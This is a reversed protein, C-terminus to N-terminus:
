KIWKYNIKLDLGDAVKTLPMTLYTNKTTLKIEYPIWKSISIEKLVPKKILKGKSNNSQKKFKKLRKRPLM